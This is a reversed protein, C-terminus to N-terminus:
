PINATAQPSLASKLGATNVAEVVYFYQDGSKRPVQESATLAPTSAVKTPYPGGSVQSRYLNYSVNLTPSAQWQLKITAIAGSADTVQFTLASSGPAGTPTGSIVGSSPTLSLGAPLTGTVISWSLPPAGGTAALPATYAVGVTADPLSTSSIALKAPLVKITLQKAATQNQAVAFSSALLVVAIIKSVM